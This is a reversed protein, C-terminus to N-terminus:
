IKNQLKEVIIECIEHTRLADLAIIQPTTGTQIAQIFDDILHHFGRKHLTPEWDNSGLWTSNKAKLIELDAVNYAIRKETANMVEIKEETTGTDRNMIGIAIAQSNILQVVLHHLTDGQKKGQVVIDEIPYPFLYRLTDIVHIFDEVVFRRITDPLAQRNKQMIILNPDPLEKLKQYVPAYRRNFGVMLQLNNKEALEVLRKSQAYHMTIPKDVYVHIQNQLLTEVIQYHAGTATHVMAATLGSALFTDLTTHLNTFRYQSGLDHLKNANGSYLHVEVDARQSMIPLYAKQAIDGLGMIGVKIM